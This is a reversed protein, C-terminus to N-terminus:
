KFDEKLKIIGEVTGIPNATGAIQNKTNDVIIWYKEESSCLISLYAEHCNLRSMTPFYNFDTHSEDYKRMDYDDLCFLDVKGGSMVQLNVILKYKASIQAIRASSTEPFAIQVDHAIESCSKMDQLLNGGYILTFHIESVNNGDTDKYSNEYVHSSTEEVTTPEPTTRTDVYGSACGIYALCLYIALIFIALNQIKM